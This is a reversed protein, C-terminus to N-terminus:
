IAQISSVITVINVLGCKASATINMVLFCDNLCAILSNYGLMQWLWNWVNCACSCSFFLHYLTKEEKLCLSCKSPLHFGRVITKEDTPLKALILKWSFLAHSPPIFSSWIFRGWKSDVLTGETIRLLMPYKLAIDNPLVINSGVIYDSSKTNLDQRGHKFIRAKLIAGKDVIPLFHIVKPREKFIPVGLYTSPLQGVLFGIKNALMVHRSPSMSGVFMISKAPNCMQGSCNAYNKLPVFTADFSSVSGKTFLMIDAAYLVHSPVLVGRCAQM